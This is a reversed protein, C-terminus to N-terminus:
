LNLEFLSVAFLKFCLLARGFVPIIVLHPVHGVFATGQATATITVIAIAIAAIFLRAVAVVFAVLGLPLSRRLKSTFRAVDMAVLGLVGVFLAAIVGFIALRAAVIAVVVVVVSLAAMVCVMVIFALETAM